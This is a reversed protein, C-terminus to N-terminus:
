DASSSVVTNIEGALEFTRRSLGQWGTFDPTDPPPDSRYRMGREIVARHEALIARARRVMEDGIKAPQDEAANMIFLLAEFDQLGERLSEYQLTVCAGDAGPRAIAGPCLPGPWGTNRLWRGYVSAAISESARLNNNVFRVSSRIIRGEADTVPWFDLGIHGFGAQGNFLAWVPTTRWVMLDWIPPMKRVYLVNPTGILRSVSRLQSQLRTYVSEHYVVFGKDSVKRPTLSADPPHGMKIWRTHGLIDDLVKAVAEPPDKGDHSFGVCMSEELGNRKFIDRIGLLAPRWFAECDAADWAPAALHGRKGAADITTVTTGPSLIGEKNLTYGRSQNDSFQWINLAIYPCKGLHRKILKLHRELIGYDYDYTGDARPKWIVEGDEEGLMGQDVVTMSAFKSGLGALLEFSRDLRRWHEESWMPVDYQLAVSTPSQYIGVVTRFDLPDPLTWDAVQLEVPVAVAKQGEAGVTLTGKYTGATLAEPVRVTMWISCVAGGDNGAAVAKPPVEELNETYLIRVAGAAFSNKGNPGVLDSLEARLGTIAARSSAVVRGSFTGNRAGVLVLPRLPENPDGWDSDRVCANRDLNWVQFGAPRQVNADVAGNPAASFGIEWV